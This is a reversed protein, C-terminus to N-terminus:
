RFSEEKFLTSVTRLAFTAIVIPGIVVVVEGRAVELNVDTLAAVSGFLKDVHRVSVLSDHEDVM